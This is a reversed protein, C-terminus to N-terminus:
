QLDERVREISLYQRVQVDQPVGNEDALMRAAGLLVVYAERPNLGLGKLVSLMLQVYCDDVSVREFEDSM